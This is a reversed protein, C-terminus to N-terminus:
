EPMNENIEDLLHITRFVKNCNRCQWDCDNKKAKKHLIELENGCIPCKAKEENWLKKLFALAEKRNEFNLEKLLAREMIVGMSDITPTVTTKTTKSSQKPAYLDDDYYSQATMASVGLTGVLVLSLFRKAEM